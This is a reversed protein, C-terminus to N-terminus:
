IPLYTRTKGPSLIKQSLAWNMLYDRAGRSEAVNCYYITRNILTKFHVPCSFFSRNELRFLLANKFSAWVEKLKSQIIYVNVYLYSTKSSATVACSIQVKTKAFPFM